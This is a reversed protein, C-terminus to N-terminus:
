NNACRIDFHTIYKFLEHWRKRPTADLMEFHLFIFYIENLVALFACVFRCGVVVYRFRFCVLCFGNVMWLFFPLFGRWYCCSIYIFLIITERIVLFSFFNLAIFFFFFEHIDFSLIFPPTNFPMFDSTFSNWPFHSIYLLVLLSILFVTLFLSSFSFRTRHSM